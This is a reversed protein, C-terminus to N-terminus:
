VILTKNNTFHKKKGTVKKKDRIDRIWLIDKKGSSYKQQRDVVATSVLTKTITHPFFIICFSSCGTLPPLVPKLKCIYYVISRKRAIVTIDHTFFSMYTVIVRIMRRDFKDCFFACALFYGDDSYILQKM